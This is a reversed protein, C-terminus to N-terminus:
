LGKSLCLNSKEKTTKEKRGKRRERGEKRGGERGESFWRV